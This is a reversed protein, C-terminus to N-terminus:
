GVVLILFQSTIALQHSNGRDFPKKPYPRLQGGVWDALFQKLVEPRESAYTGCGGRLAVFRLVNITRREPNEM